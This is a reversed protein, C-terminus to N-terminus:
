HIGPHNWPESSLNVRNQQSVSTLQSIIHNHLYVTLCIVYGYHLHSGIVSAHKKFQPDFQGTQAGRFLM